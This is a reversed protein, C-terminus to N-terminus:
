FEAWLGLMVGMSEDGTLGWAGGVEAKLGPALPFVLSPALRAYGPKGAPFGTQLQLILMRGNDFKLGRTLDLKYDALGTVTSYEMLGEASLWGNELGLGLSLGPRLVPADDIRGLGLEAAIRFGSERDRLPHRLFVIAKGGGTGSRGLDLGLTYRETLGYEFYLSHYRGHPDKSVMRSLDKPWSFRAATSLFAEGEPRLWAGAVLPEGALLLFTLIVARWYRM